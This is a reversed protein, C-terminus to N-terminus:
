VGPENEKKGQQVDELIKQWRSLAMAHNQKEQFTQTSM